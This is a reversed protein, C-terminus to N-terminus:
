IAFMELENTVSINSKYLLYSAMELKEYEIFSGKQRNNQKMILCKFAKEQVSRKVMIKFLMELLTMTISYEALLQTVKEVWDGRSPNQKQAM